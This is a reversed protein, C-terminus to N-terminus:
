TGERRWGAEVFLPVYERPIFLRDEPNPVTHYQQPELLVDGNKSLDILWRDPPQRRALFRIEFAEIRLPAACYFIGIKQQRAERVARRAAALPTGPRDAVDNASGPPIVAALVSPQKFFPDVNPWIFYPSVRGERLLRENYSRPRPAPQTASPQDRNMYCLFRGYRDLVEYAFALFFAFTEESQGLAAMDASVAAELADEAAAAHEYHNAAAGHGTRSGLNAELGASLAPQFPEVFPDQLFTEWGQSALSTFPKAGPLRASVEPADVGLFRVGFGGDAQVNVTDGDHVQQRVSGNVGGRLGLKARGITLGSDLQQVAKAM